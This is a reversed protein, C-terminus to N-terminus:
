LMTGSLRDARRRSLRTMTGDKLRIDFDGRERRILEVIQDVNVIAGRHVRAFKAPDLLGEIRQITDRIRLPEGGAHVVVFPGQAEFWAIEGVAVPLLRGRARLLLREPYRRRLRPSPNTRKARRVEVALFAREIALDLRARDVPAIFYDCAGLQFAAYAHGGDAAVVITAHDADPDLTDLFETEDRLDLVVVDAAPWGSGRGMPDFVRVTGGPATDRLAEGVMRALLPDRSRVVVAPPAEVPESITDIHSM